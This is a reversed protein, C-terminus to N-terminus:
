IEETDTTNGNKNRIKNNQIKERWMKSFKSSLQDIKNIKRLSHLIQKM